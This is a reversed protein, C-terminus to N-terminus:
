IVENKMSAVMKNFENLDTNKFLMITIIIIGVVIKTLKSLKKYNM